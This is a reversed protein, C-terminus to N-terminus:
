NMMSLRVSSFVFVTMSLQQALSSMQNMTSQENYEAALYFIEKVEKLLEQSNRIIALVADEFGNIEQLVQIYTNSPLYSPSTEGISPSKGLSLVQEAINDQTHASVKHLFDVKQNFDLFPNLQRDWHIKRINNHYVEYNRLLDDLREALEERQEPSTKDFNILDM